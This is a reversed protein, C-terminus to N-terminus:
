KLPPSPDFPGEAVSWFARLIGGFPGKKKCKTHSISFGVAVLTENGTLDWGRDITFNIIIILVILLTVMHVRKFNDKCKCFNTNEVSKLVELAIISHQINHSSFNLDFTLLFIIKILKWSCRIKYDWKLSISFLQVM